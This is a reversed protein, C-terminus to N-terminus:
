NPSSDETVVFAVAVTVVVAIFILPLTGGLFSSGSIREQAPEGVRQGLRKGSIQPKALTAAGARLPQGTQAMLPVTSLAAAAAGAIINRILM